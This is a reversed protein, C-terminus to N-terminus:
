KNGEKKIYKDNFYKMYIDYIEYNYYDEYKRTIFYSLFLNIDEIDCVVIALGKNKNIDDIVIKQEKSLNNFRKPTKVEIAVFRGDINAIIDPSGKKGNRVYGGNKLKFGGSNNRVAYIKNYELIKLVSSVIQSENM